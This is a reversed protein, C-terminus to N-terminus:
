NCPTTDRTAATPSSPATPSTTPNVRWFNIPLGARVMNDFFTTNNALTAAATQPNPNLSYLSQVLTTNTWNTGTYNAPNTAAASGNINALFIPLPSTGPAGTYAFTSGRGAAINAVLNAQALRFENM